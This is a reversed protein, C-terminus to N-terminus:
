TTNAAPWKWGNAQLLNVAASIEEITYNPYWSKVDTVFEGMQNILYKYVGHNEIFSIVDLMIGKKELFDCETIKSQVPTPEDLLKIGIFCRISKQGMGLSKLVNQLDRPLSSVRYSKNGVAWGSEACEKIIERKIEDPSLEASINKQTFRSFREYLFANPIINGPAEELCEEVFYRVPRSKREYEM